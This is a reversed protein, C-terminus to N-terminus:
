TYININAKTVYILGQFDKTEGGHFECTSFNLFEGSKFYSNIMRMLWFPHGAIKAFPPQSGLYIYIDLHWDIPFHPIEVRRNYFSTGKLM